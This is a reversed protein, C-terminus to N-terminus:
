HKFSATLASRIIETIGGAKGIPGAYIAVSGCEAIIEPVDEAAHLGDGSFFGAVITPRDVDRRLADGLFEAEELFATEVSAFRRAGAIDAAVARTADASAPGIKSGHGVVVLRVTEPSLGHSAATAVVEAAILEPLRPDAGLPALVHVDIPIELAALRETLVKRTFYGDAMFMPYVALCKAGAAVAARVTDDLLPEGRLIGAGVSHFLGMADLAAAHMLLTANPHQGGRDGHAALVVAVDGIHVTRRGSPSGADALAEVVLERVAPDLALTLAAEHGRDSMKKWTKQVIGIMKERDHKAAFDAAYHQLFVLCAVDELAQSEADTKLNEKRILQGVREIAPADFGCDQLIEAAWEAHRRKLEGRWRHYGARDMPYTERPITWRRLHQARAALRLAESADPVLRQLLASMRESYVLEAPRTTGDIDVSNPDAANATDIQSFAREFPTM